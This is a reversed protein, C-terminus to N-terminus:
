PNTQMRRYSTAYSYVCPTGEPTEGNETYVLVMRSNDLSAVNYVLREDESPAVVLIGYYSNYAWQGLYDRVWTGNQPDISQSEITFDARINLRHRPNENYTTEPELGEVNMTISQRTAEWSGLLETPFEEGDDDDDDTCAGLGACAALAVVTLAAHRLIQSLSFTKKMYKKSKQPQTTQNKSISQAFKQINRAAVYIKKNLIAISIRFNIAIIAGACCIKNSSPSEEYM